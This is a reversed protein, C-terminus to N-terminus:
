AHWRAQSIAEDEAIMEGALDRGKETLVPGRTTLAIYGNVLLWLWEDPAIQPRRGHYLDILPENAPM